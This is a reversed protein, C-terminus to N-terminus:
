KLQKKKEREQRFCVFISPIQSLLILRQKSMLLHKAKLILQFVKCFVQKKRDLIKFM